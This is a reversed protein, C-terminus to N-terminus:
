PNEYTLLVAGTDRVRMEYLNNVLINCASEIEITSERHIEKRGHEFPWISAHTCLVECSM